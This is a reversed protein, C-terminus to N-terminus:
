SKERRRYKDLLFASFSQKHQVVEYLDEDITGWAVMYYYSVEPSRNYSRIRFKAQEHNIYSYDWSYFIAMPCDALDIAVGSQIQVVAVETKFGIFKQKGYITTVTFQGSRLLTSITEVEHIFRAFIVIRRLPHLRNILRRLAGIKESGFWQVKKESDILAGGTCQHLKMALTIAQPAFVQRGNVTTMFETELRRYHPLSAHLQFRVRIGANVVTKVAAVDDLLVRHMRSDVLRRLEEENKYGIIKRGMFGGLRCYRDRFEGWTGFLTPDVFEFVGWLDHPKDFPTGSLGLTWRAV